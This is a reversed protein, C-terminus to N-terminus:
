YLRPHNKVASKWPQDVVHNPIVTPLSRGKDQIAAGGAVRGVWSLLYHGPVGALAIPTPAAVRSLLM